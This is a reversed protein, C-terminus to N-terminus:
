YIPFFSVNNYICVARITVSVASVKVTVNNVNINMMM